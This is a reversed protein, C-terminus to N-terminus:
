SIDWCANQRLVLICIARQNCSLLCLMVPLSYNLPTRDALQARLTTSSPGKYRSQDLHGLGEVLLWIARPPSAGSSPMRLFPDPNNDIM